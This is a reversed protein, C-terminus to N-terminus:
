AGEALAKLRQLAKPYTERMYAEYAPASDLTVCVHTGEPTEDLRYNEYAPAWARVADSTTDDVGQRVEGLIRISVFAPPRWEAIEALMGDGGPSLFRMPAGAAWTGTFYSGECFAATWHRYGANGLMHDWVRERPARISVEFVLPKTATSRLAAQRREVHRAFSDLIAQWGQRQQEPSHTTEADFTERVTVAGGADIFDVVLARDGFACELRRLPVIATYTGAFDFGMSGDRAEMRSTFSGGVRLDVAARPTHWDPSATNWQVIDEPTTWARWVEPLPARVTTEVTIKM